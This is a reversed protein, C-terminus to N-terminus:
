AFMRDPPNAQAISHKREQAQTEEIHERERKLRIDDKPRSCGGLSKAMSWTTRANCMTRIGDSTTIPMSRKETSHMTKM